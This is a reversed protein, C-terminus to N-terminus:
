ILKEIINSVSSVCKVNLNSLNDVSNVMKYGNYYKIMDIDSEGDGSTIVNDKSINEISSIFKVSNLKSTENSVIEICVNSIRYINVNKYKSKINNYVKNTTEEDYKVCIKTLKNIDSVIGNINCLYYVSSKDLELENIINKSIDDDIYYSKILKNNSDLIISGHDLSVYDYKLNFKNKVENFSFVGRGTIIAFINGKNRFKSVLEINNELDNENIYFTKDFDTAYLKKM